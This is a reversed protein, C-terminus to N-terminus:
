SNYLPPPRQDGIPKRFAVAHHLFLKAPTPDAVLSHQGRHVLNRAFFEDRRFRTEEGVLVVRDRDSLPLGNRLGIHRRQHSFRHRQLAGFVDEFHPRPDRFLGSDPRSHAERDQEILSALSSSFLRTGLPSRVELVATQDRLVREDVVFEFAGDPNVPATLSARFTLSPDSPGPPTGDFELRITHGAYQSKLSEDKPSLRGKVRKDAM